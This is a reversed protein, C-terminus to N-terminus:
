SIKKLKKTARPPVLPRKEPILIPVDIEPNAKNLISRPMPIPKPKRPMPKPKRPIPIPKQKRPTPKPKPKEGLQKLILDILVKKRRDKTWGVINNKQAFNKVGNATMNELERRSINKQPQNQIKKIEQILKERTRFKSRGPLNIEKALKKLNEYNESEM